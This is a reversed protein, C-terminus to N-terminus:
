SGPTKAQLRRMKELWTDYDGIKKEAYALTNPHTVVLFREDRMGQVLSEAVDAPEIAGATAFWEGSAGSLMATRIGESVICAVRIGADGYAIALWESLAVTAHKTVAYPANGLVTLLGGASAHSVLYGGGQAVMHPVAARAAYVQSMVNVDWMRQWAHNSVDIGGRERWTGHDTGYLIAANSCFVDIRGYHRVTESVLNVVEDEVGVDAPVSLGSVEDAILGSGTADVDSAVILAGEAAFRRCFAQGCGGAAGTVVIVKDQLEM